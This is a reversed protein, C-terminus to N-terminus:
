EKYQLEKEITKLILTYEILDSDNLVKPKINAPLDWVIHLDM